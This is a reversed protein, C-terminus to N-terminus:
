QKFSQPHIPIQALASSSLIQSGVACNPVKAYVDLYPSIANLHTGGSVKLSWDAVKHLGASKTVTPGVLITQDPNLLYWLLSIVPQLYIHEHAGSETCPLNLVLPSLGRNAATHPCYFSDHTM